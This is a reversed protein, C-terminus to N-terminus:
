ESTYLKKQLTKHFLELSWCSLYKKSRKEVPHNQKPRQIELYMDVSTLHTTILPRYVFLSKMITAVLLILADLHLKM